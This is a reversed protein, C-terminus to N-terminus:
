EVSREQQKIGGGGALISLRHECQVVRCDAMKGVNGRMMVKTLHGVRTTLQPSFDRLTHAHVHGHMHTTHTHAHMCAPTRAPFSPALPCAGSMGCREGGRMWGRRGRLWHCHGEMRM